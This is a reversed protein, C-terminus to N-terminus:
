YTFTKLYVGTHSKKEQSIQKPTGEAVIHGGKDGGEPGLDIIWDANAIVDLNHEIVIITNGAKILKDFLSLLKEIDSPHLGTTPEDMIYVEGKKQLRKTLKLRQCEGGSLTDLSQGLQLYDLGVDVLTQLSPLTEKIQLKEIAESATLQLIEAINMNKHTFSLAKPTYRKGECKECPIKIDGLFNMDIRNHGLGKCSPCAGKGNFSFLSTSEGSSEAFVKRIFDFAGVYTAITGRPTKGVPSQDIIVTSQHQEHIVEALSSKGSGSVGTIAIIRNLPLSIDLNRLNNKNAHHVKLYSSAPKTTFQKPMDKGRKNFLYNSTPSNHMSKLQGITGNFVIEGGQRGGGPGLEIIYDCESITYPDHEIILLSNNHTGLRAIISFLDGIDKPHLGITPEDLIYITEVLDSCLQRALKVRQAEGGSITSIPRNLSLYGIGVKTMHELQQLLRPKIVQANKHDVENIFKILETIPLNATEGINKGNVTVNLAKKNLRGGNCKPCPQSSIYRADRDPGYRHTSSNRREMRKIIGEFSWKQVFGTYTESLEIRDSYLLKKLEVKTYDSLKKDMDFLRTSKVINWQRGDVKWDGPIIAGENLSKQYNLIKDPDFSIKTGLGKCEPCAGNPHNFSFYSSDLIPVGVRSYLLRLYNYTETLTGVTSRPNKSPRSQDIVITPSIGTISDVDPRNSKPLYRRAYSSLSELYQRQGEKAIIDFVLSSKGSGSVGVFCVIKNRPIDIDINKLNNVKAGRISIHNM